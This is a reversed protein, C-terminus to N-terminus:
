GLRKGGRFEAIVEISGVINANFQPLDAAPIWYERHDASGVVHVDYARLFETRMRFRLVFGAFGSRDDKTNWDRAIQTAYEASLVPYFIPQEPLRAPFERFGIKRILELEGAGVPRYLTTLEDWM